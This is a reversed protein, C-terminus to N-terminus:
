ASCLQLRAAHVQAEHLATPFNPPQTVPKRRCRSFPAARAFASVTPRNGQCEAPDRRGDTRCGRPPRAIRRRSQRLRRTTCAPQQRTRGIRHRDPNCGRPEGRRLVSLGAFRHQRSCHHRGHLRVARRRLFPFGRLLSAVFTCAGLWLIFAALLMTRDQAFIGVIAVAAVGGILTGAARYIAKSMAM